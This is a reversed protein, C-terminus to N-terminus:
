PPKWSAMHSLTIKVKQDEQSQRGLTLTVLMLWWTYSPVLKTVFTEGNRLLSQTFTRRLKRLSHKPACKSSRTYMLRYVQPLCSPPLINHKPECRRPKGPAGNAGNSQAMALRLMTTSLTYQCCLAAASWAASSCLDPALHM